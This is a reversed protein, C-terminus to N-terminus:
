GPLGRRMRPALAAGCGRLYAWGPVGASGDM